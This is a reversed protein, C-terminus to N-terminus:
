VMSKTKSSFKSFKLLTLALIIWRMKVKDCRLATKICDNDTGSDEQILKQNNIFETSVSGGTLVM